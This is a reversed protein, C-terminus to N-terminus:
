NWWGLWSLLSIPLSYIRQMNIVTCATIDIRDWNTLNANITINGPAFFRVVQGGFDRFTEISDNSTCNFSTVIPAVVAGIFSTVTVNEALAPSIFSNSSENGARFLFDTLIYNTTTQIPFTATTNTENIPLYNSFRHNFQGAVFIENVEPTSLSRNFIVVEDISGNWTRLLSIAAGIVINQPETGSLGGIFPQDDQLVGDIYLLVTGNYVGVYHHWDTDTLDVNADAIAVSMSANSALFEINDLADLRLVFVDVGGGEQTVITKDSTVPIQTAKAWASVAFGPINEVINADGFNIGGGSVGPGFKFGGFYYGADIPLPNGSVTGNNQVGASYDVVHTSNEGNSSRNDLHWWGVITPDITGTFADDYDSINVEGVRVQLSSNFGTFSRNSITINVRDESESQSINVLQFTQQGTPFFRSSSNRYLSLVQSPSLSINLVMVEDIIGNWSSDLNSPNNDNVGGIAGDNAHEGIQSAQTGTSELLGDIYLSMNGDSFIATVHFFDVSDSPITTTSAIEVTGASEEATIFIITEPGGRYSVEFGNNGGGEEYLVMGTPSHAVFWASFTRNTINAHLPGPDVSSVSIMDDVGDFDYAGGIYGTQNWSVNAVRTGDNNHKSYDFIRGNTPGGVNIFTANVDFPMYLIVNSDNIFSSLNTITLHSISTTASEQTVNNLISPFDGVTSITITPDLDIVQGRFFNVSSVDFRITVNNPSREITRSLGGFMKLIDSFDFDVYECRREFGQGYCRSKYYFGDRVRNRVQGVTVNETQVEFIIEQLNRAIFGGVPTDPITLNAGFKWSEGRQEKWWDFYQTINYETGNIKAKLGIKVKREGHRYVLFNGEIFLNGSSESVSKLNEADTTQLFGSGIRQSNSILFGGVISILVVMSIIFIHFKRM